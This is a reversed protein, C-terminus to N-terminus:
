PPLFSPPPCRQIDAHLARFADKIYGKLPRSSSRPDDLSKSTPNPRTPLTDLAHCATYNYQKVSSDSGRHKINQEEM